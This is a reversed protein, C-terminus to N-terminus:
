QGAAQWSYASVDQEVFCKEGNGIVYGRGDSQVTFNSELSGISM